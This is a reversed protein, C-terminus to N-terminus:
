EWIFSYPLMRATDSIMTKYNVYKYFDTYCTKVICFILILNFLMAIANKNKITFNRPTYTAGFFFLGLALRYSLAFASSFIFMCQGVVLCKLSFKKCEDESSLLVIVLVYLFLTYNLVSENEIDYNLYRTIEASDISSAALLSLFSLVDGVLNQSLITVVLSIILALIAGNRSLKMFHIAILIPFVIYMTTHSLLSLAVFFLILGYKVVAKLKGTEYIIYAVLMFGIACCQRLATQSNTLLFWMSFYMFLSLLRNEKNNKYILYYFPLLTVVSTGFIIIFDNDGFIRLFKNLLYYGIETTQESYDVNGYYSGTGNFYDCYAFTDGGIDRSRFALVFFTIFAGIVFLFTGKNRPSLWLFLTLALLFCEIYAYILIDM